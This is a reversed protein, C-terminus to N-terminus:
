TFNKWFAGVTEVQALNSDLMLLEKQFLSSGKQTLTQNLYTAIM